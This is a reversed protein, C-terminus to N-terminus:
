ESKAESIKKARASSSFDTSFSLCLVNTLLLEAIQTDEISPSNALQSLSLRSSIIISKGSNIRHEILEYLASKATSTNRVLTLGDLLLLSPSYLKSLYVDRADGLKGIVNNTYDIASIYRVSIGNTLAANAFCLMAHTKGTHAPGAFLMGDPLKKSDIYKKIKKLQNTQISSDFTYKGFNRLFDGFCDYKLNELHKQRRKEQEVAEKQAIQSTTCACPRRRISGDFLVGEVPLGCVDCTKLERKPTM